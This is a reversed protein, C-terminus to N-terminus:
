VLSRPVLAPGGVKSGLLLDLPEGNDVSEVVEDLGGLTVRLERDTKGNGVNVVDLTNSLDDATSNLLSGEHRTIDNSNNRRAKLVLLNEGNFLVLLLELLSAWSVGNTEGDLTNGLVLLHLWSVDDVDLLITVELGDLGESGHNGHLLVRTNELRSIGRNDEATGSLNCALHGLNQPLHALLGSSLLHVVGRLKGLVLIGLNLKLWALGEKNLGKLLTCGKSTNSHHVRVSQLHKTLDCTSNEGFSHRGGCREGGFTQQTGKTTQSDKEPKIQCCISYSALLQAHTRLIIM